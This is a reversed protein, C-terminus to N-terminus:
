DTDYVVEKVLWGPPEIWYDTVRSRWCGSCMKVEPLPPVFERCCRVCLFIIM